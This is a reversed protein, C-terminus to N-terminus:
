KGWNVCVSSCFYLACLLITQLLSINFPNRWVQGFIAHDWSQLSCAALLTTRAAVFKVSIAVPPLFRIWSNMANDYNWNSNTQKQKANSSSFIFVWHTRVLSLMYAKQEVLWFCFWVTERALCRNCTKGRKTADTPDWAKGHKASIVCKGASILLWM